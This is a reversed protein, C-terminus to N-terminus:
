GSIQLPIELFVKGTIEFARVQWIGAVPSLILMATGPYSFEDIDTTSPTAPGRPHSHFSAVMELASSELDYFARVLENPEMNYRSVSHLQNTIPITLCIQNGSGALIGCGEEPAVAAVHATMQDIQDRTIQLSTSKM